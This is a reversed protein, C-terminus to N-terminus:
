RESTTTTMLLRPEYAFDAESEAREADSASKLNARAAFM